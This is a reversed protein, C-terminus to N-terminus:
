NTQLIGLAGILLAHFPKGDCNTGQDTHIKFPFGFNSFCNDVAAKATVDVKQSPLPICEVWKTFQDVVLVYENGIATRPLPGLVDMHVRELPAGAQYETLLCRGYRNNKKNRSGVACTTGYTAVDQGLGYWFCKEKARAKTRAVGQHGSTPLDHSCELASDQLSKTIVL